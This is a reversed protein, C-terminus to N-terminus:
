RCRRRVARLLDRRILGSGLRIVLWYLAFLRRARADTSEVRTETVLRSGSDDPM